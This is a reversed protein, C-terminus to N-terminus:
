PRLFRETRAMRQVRARRDLAEAYNTRALDETTAAWTEVTQIRGGLHLLADRLARIEAVALPGADPPYPRALPALKAMQAYLDPATM